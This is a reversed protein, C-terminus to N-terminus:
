QDVEASQEVGDNDQDAEDMSQLIRQAVFYAQLQDHNTGELLQKFEEDSLQNIAKPVDTDAARAITDGNIDELYDPVQNVIMENGLLDEEIKPKLEQWRSWNQRFTESDPLEDNSVDLATYCQELNSRANRLRGPESLFKRNLENARKQDEEVQELYQSRLKEIRMDVMEIDTEFREELKNYDTSEDDGDSAVPVLNDITQGLGPLIEDVTTDSDDGFLEELDEHVTANAITRRPDSSEAHSSVNDMVSIDPNNLSTRDFEDPFATLVDLHEHLTNRTQVASQADELESLLTILPGEILYMLHKDDDPLEESLITLYHSVPTDEYADESRVADVRNIIEEYDGEWPIVHEEEISSLYAIQDDSSIEDLKAQFNEINSDKENKAAKDLVAKEITDRLGDRVDKYKAEADLPSELMIDAAQDVDDNMRWRGQEIRDGLSLILYIGVAAYSQLRNLDRIGFILEVVDVYTVTEDDEAQGIVQAIRTMIARMRDTYEPQLTDGNVFLETSLENDVFSRFEEPSQRARSKGVNPGEGDEDLLVENYYLSNGFDSYHRVAYVADRLEGANYDRHDFGLTRYCFQKSRTANRTLRSLDFFSRQVVKQRLRESLSDELLENQLGLKLFLTYSEFESLDDYEEKIADLLEVYRDQTFHTEFEGGFFTSLDNEIEPANLSLPECDVTDCNVEIPLESDDETPTFALVMELKPNDEITKEGLEPPISEGYSLYLTNLFNGRDPTYILYDGEEDTSIDGGTESDLFQSWLSLLTKSSLQHDEVDLQVQQELSRTIEGKSTEIFRERNFLLRDSELSYYDRASATEWVERVEEEDTIPFGASEAIEMTGAVTFYQRAEDISPDPSEKLMGAKTLIKIVSTHFASARQYDNEITTVVRESGPFNQLNAINNRASKRVTDGNQYLFEMDIAQEGEPEWKRLLEVLIDKVDRFSQVVKSEDLEATGIFNVVFRITDETFPYIYEDAHEDARNLKNLWEDTSSYDPLIQRAYMRYLKNFLEVTEDFTLDIPHHIADQARKLDDREIDLYEEMRDFKFTNAFLIYPVYSDPEVANRLLIQCMRLTRPDFEGDPRNQRERHLQEFEDIYIAPVNDEIEEFKSTFWEITRVAEGSQLEAVFESLEELSGPDQWTDVYEDQVEERLAEFTLRRRNDDYADLLDGERISSGAAILGEYITQLFDAPILNKHISVDICDIEKTGYVIQEFEEGDFVAPQDLLSQIAYRLLTKGSGYAGSLVIGSAEEDALQQIIDNLAKRRTETIIVPSGEELFAELTPLDQEECLQEAEDQFGDITTVQLLRLVSKKAQAKNM